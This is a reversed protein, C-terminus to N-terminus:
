EKTAKTIFDFDNEHKLFVHNQNTKEALVQIKRLGIDEKTLKTEKEIAIVKGLWIVNKGQDIQVEDGIEFKIAM